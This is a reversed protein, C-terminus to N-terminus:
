EEDADGVQNNDANPCGKKNHGKEKCHSCNYREPRKNSEGRSPLCQHDAKRKKNAASLNSFGETKVKLHPLVEADRNGNWNFGHNDLYLRSVDYNVSARLMKVTLREDLADHYTWRAERSDCNKKESTM